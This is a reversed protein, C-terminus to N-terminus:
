RSQPSRSVGIAESMEALSSVRGRNAVIVMSCTSYTQSVRFFTTAHDVFRYTGLPLPLVDLVIAFDNPLAARDTIALAAFCDGMSLISIAADGREECHCTQSILTIQPYFRRPRRARRPLHRHSRIVM